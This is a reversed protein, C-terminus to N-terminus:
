YDFEEMHDKVIPLIDALIERTLGEKWRGVSKTSIGTGLNSHFPLDDVNLVNISSRQDLIDRSYELRLLRLCSEISSEPDSTLDEYRLVLLKNAPVLQKINELTQISRVWKKAAPIPMAATNYNKLKQYSLVVDRPDRVMFIVPAETFEKVVLEGFESTVPSHDGYVSFGQKFQHGYLKFIASVILEFDRNEESTNKLEELIATQLDASVNWSLNNITRSFEHVVLHCIQDWALHRYLHWKMLAYPLAYQESPLFIKPHNNLITALLTSGTRGSGFVFFPNVPRDPGLTKSRRGLISETIKIAQNALVDYKFKGTM